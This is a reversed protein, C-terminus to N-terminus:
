SSVGLVSRALQAYASAANPWSLQRARAHGRDVCQLRIATEDIFHALNTALAHDDGADALLAADGAVEACGIVRMCAVPCGLSMAEIIPIGFGEARSPVVLARAHAYLTSLKADDAALTVVSGNRLGLEALLAREEADFGGRTVTVLRGDFGSRQLAAFARAATAFDKYRKRAGVHLFYPMGGLPHAADPRPLRAGHHIVAIRSPDVREIRILEDRTGQSPVVIMTARAIAARKQALSRAMAQAFKPDAEQIMDHVTMLVPFGRAKRACFQHGTDHVLEPLDLRAQLEFALRPLHIAVKRLDGKIPLYRGQVLRSPLERLHANGHVLASVGVKIEGADDLARVLEAFCRSVGGFEQVLFAEPTFRVFIAKSSSKGASESTIERHAGRLVDGDVPHSATRTSNAMSNCAKSRELM